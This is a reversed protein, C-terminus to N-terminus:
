PPSGTWAVRVVRAGPVTSAPRGKGAQKAEREAQEADFRFVWDRYSEAETFLEYVAPFGARISFRFVPQVRWIGGDTDKAAGMGRDHTVTFRRLHRVPTPSRPGVAVRRFKEAPAEGHWGALANGSRSSRRGTSTASSCDREKEAPRRYGVTGLAAM